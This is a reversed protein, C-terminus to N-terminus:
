VLLGVESIAALGENIMSLPLDDTALLARVSELSTAAAASRREAVGEEENPKKEGQRDQEEEVEFLLLRWALLVAQLM